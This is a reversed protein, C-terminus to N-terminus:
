KRILDILVEAKKRQQADGWLPRSRELASIAERDKHLQHLANALLLLAEPSISDDKSLLTVVKKYEKVRTAILARNYLISQRESYAIFAPSAKLAHAYADDALKPENHLLFYNGLYLYGELFHPERVVEPTFLTADNKFQFGAMFTVYSMIMIWATCLAYTCVRIALSSKKVIRITLLFLAAFAALAIYGYHPSGLRPVPIIALAPSLFILFLCVAKSWNSSFGVRRIFLLSLVIFVMAGFPVISILQTVPVADSLNPKFPNIFAFALKAVAFLHTGIADGLPSPQASFRWLEPVANLRLLLYSGIAFSEPIILARFATKLRTKGKTIEWLGIVLPILVLATEKSLLALILSIVALFEIFSNGTRRAKSHFYVTLFTFITLLFESRYAIAGIPLWGLPHIGVIFMALLTEFLTFSFFVSLFLPILAIVIVHLAINTFHYGPAWEGYFAHDLNETITVLPRYFGTDGFRTFLADSLRDIPIIVRGAEIDGHDLWVFDNNIYSLHLIFILVIVLVYFLKRLHRKMLSNM